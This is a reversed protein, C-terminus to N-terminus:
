QNGDEEPETNAENECDAYTKGDAKWATRGNLTSGSVVSAASSPSKFVTDETFRYSDNEESLIRKELLRKRLTKSADSLKPAENKRAVSGSKVLFEGNQTLSMNADFGKGILEFRITEIGAKGLVMKDTTMEEVELREPQIRFLDLGLAGVLIIAQEVFEDSAAREHRPLKGADNGPTKGKRVVWDPNREAIETLKSEIYLTHAKTLFEDKCILAITDIWHAYKEEDKASLHQKLRVHVRESEGIYATWQGNKQIDSGYLLYTGANALEPFEKAAKALQNRRFAIAQITSMQITAVRIDDPNGDLLFINISRPKNM